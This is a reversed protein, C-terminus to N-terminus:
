GDGGEQLAADPRQPQQAVAALAELRALAEGIARYARVNVEYDLEARLEAHATQRANSILLFGTILIAEVALVIGLLSYPYADFPAVDPVAGANLLAWVAFWILHLVIFSPHAAFQTVRDALHQFWSTQHDFEERVYRFEGLAKHCAANSCFVADAANELGCAPCILPAASDPALRARDAPRQM